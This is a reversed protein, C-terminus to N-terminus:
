NTGRTNQLGYETIDAEQDWEEPESDELSQISTESDPETNRENPTEKKGDEESLEASTVTVPDLFDYDTLRWQNEDLPRTVM